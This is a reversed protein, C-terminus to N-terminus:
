IESYNLATWSANKHLAQGDNQHLAQRDNHHLAQGQFIFANYDEAVDAVV